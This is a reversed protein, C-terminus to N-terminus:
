SFHADIIRGTPYPWFEFRGDAERCLMEARFINGEAPTPRQQHQGAFALPQLTEEFGEIV